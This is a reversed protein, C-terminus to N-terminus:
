NTILQQTSSSGSSYNKKYDEFKSSNSNVSGSCESNVSDAVNESSKRYSESYPNVQPSNLFDRTELDKNQFNFKPRTISAIGAAGGVLKASNEEMEPIDPIHKKEIQETKAKLEELDEHESLRREKKPKIRDVDARFESKTDASTPVTTQSIYKMGKELRETKIVKMFFRGYNVSILDGPKLRKFWDGMDCYCGRNNGVIKKNQFFRYQQGQKLHVINDEIKGVRVSSGKLQVMVPLRIAYKNELNTRIEHLKELFKPDEYVMHTRLFNMGSLLLKEIYEETL